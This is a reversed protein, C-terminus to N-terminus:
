QFLAPISTPSDAVALVEHIYCHTLKKTLMSDSQSYFEMDSGYSAYGQWCSSKLSRAGLVALSFM